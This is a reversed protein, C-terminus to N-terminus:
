TKSLDLTQINWNAPQSSNDLEISEAVNSITYMVLSTANSDLKVQQNIEDYLILSNNDTSNLNSKTITPQGLLSFNTPLTANSYTIQDTSHNITIISVLSIPDPYGYPLCLVLITTSNWEIM